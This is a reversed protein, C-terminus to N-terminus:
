INMNMYRNLHDFLSLSARQNDAHQRRRASAEVVSGHASPQQAPFQLQFLVIRYYAAVHQKCLTFYVTQARTGVYMSENKEDQIGGDLINWGDM